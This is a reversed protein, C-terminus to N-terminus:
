PWDQGYQPVDQFERPPEYIVPDIKGNVMRIRRSDKLEYWITINESKDKTFIIKVGDGTKTDFAKVRLYVLMDKIFKSNDKKDTYAYDPPDINLREITNYAKELQTKAYKIEVNEKANQMYPLLFYIGMIIIFVFFVIEVMSAGTARRNNTFKIM